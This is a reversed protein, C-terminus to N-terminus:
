ATTVISLFFPDRDLTAGVYLVGLVDMGKGLNESKEM